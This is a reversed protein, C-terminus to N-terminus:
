RSRPSLYRDSPAQGRRREAAVIVVAAVIVLASVAPAVGATATTASGLNLFTHFLVAIGTSGGSARYMWTLVISGAVLGVLWGAALAPGMSGPGTPLFFTPVHWLAWPGAVVLGTRTLGGSIREVAYGRWGLEEGIGNVVLVLLLTGMLNTDPLGDLHAWRSLPPRRGGLLAGLGVILVAVLLPAVAGAYWRAPVRWRVLGAALRRLGPLGETAATVVVAAVAPGLLGPFHSWGLDLVAVPIWYSWSLGIAVVFFAAVRRGM